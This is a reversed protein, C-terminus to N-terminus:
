AQVIDHISAFFAFVHMPCSILNPIAQYLLKIVTMGLLAFLAIRTLPNPHPSLTLAFDAPRGLFSDSRSRFDPPM